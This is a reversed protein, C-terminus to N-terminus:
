AWVRYPDLLRDVYGSPLEAVSVGASIEERHKYLTGIRLLIWSRIGAPVDAAAGYGAVFRVRVANTTDLTNPWDEGYAPLLWGPLRDADLTYDASDMVQSAAATDIYTVSSIGIVPPMGLEIEAPPFADLVREWTQTILARGVQHEAQERAAQILATILTDDDTGDVRLHLKAETITVPESAPATILTLSM